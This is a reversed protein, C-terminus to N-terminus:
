RPERRRSRIASLLVGAVIVRCAFILTRFEPAVPPGHADILGLALLWYGGYAALLGCAILFAQLSRADLFRRYERRTRRVYWYALLMVPGNFALSLLYRFQQDTM